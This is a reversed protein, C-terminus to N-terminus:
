RLLRATVTIEEVGALARSVACGARAEEAYGAFADADQLGPVDAETELEIRQITPVGDVPRLHVRARTAIARPPHGATALRHTLAMSFCGAHAAAILEEPNTGDEDEFRSRFSYPAEWTAEGVVLRGAGTPLDGDWRASGTRVPM